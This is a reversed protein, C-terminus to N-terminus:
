IGQYREMMVQRIEENLEALMVDKTIEAPRMIIQETVEVGRWYWAKTLPWELAPGDARHLAGNETWIAPAALVAVEDYTLAQAFSGAEFADIMPGYLTLLNTSNSDLHETRVNLLGVAVQVESLTSTTGFAGAARAELRGLEALAPDKSIRAEWADKGKRADWAGRSIRVRHGYMRDWALRGTTRDYVNQVDFYASDVIWRVKLTLRAASLRRNYAEVVNSTCHPPNTWNIAAPYQASQMEARVVHRCQLFAIM